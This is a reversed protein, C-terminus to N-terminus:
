HHVIDVLSTRMEAPMVSWGMMGVHPYTGESDAMMGCGVVHYGLCLANVAHNIGVEIGASVFHNYAVICTACCGVVDSVEHCRVM